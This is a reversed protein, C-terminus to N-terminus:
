EGEFSYQIAVYVPQDAGVGEVTLRVKGKRYAGIPPNFPVPRVGNEFIGKFILTKGPTGIVPELTLKIAVANSHSVYISHIVINKDEPSLDFDQPGSNPTVEFTRVDTDPIIVYGRFTVEQM